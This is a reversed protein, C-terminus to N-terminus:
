FFNFFNKKFYYSTTALLVQRSGKQKVIVLKQNRYVNYKSLQICDNFFAQFASKVPM